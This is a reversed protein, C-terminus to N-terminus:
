RLRVECTQEQLVREVFKHYDIAATGPAAYSQFVKLLDQVVGAPRGDAYQRVAVRHGCRCRVCRNTSSSASAAVGWPSSM